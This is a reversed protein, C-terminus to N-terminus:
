RKRKIRNLSSHSATASPKLGDFPGAPAPARDIVQKVRTVSLGEEAAIKQLFNKTGAARLEAKRGRLRQGRADPSEATGIGAAGPTEAWRKLARSDFALRRAEWALMEPLEVSHGAVVIRMAERSAQLFVATRGRGGEFWGLRMGEALVVADPQGLSRALVGALTRHTMRWRELLSLPLSVRGMDDRKDCAVFAVAERGERPLVHVPMACAQECGPCVVSAAPAARLLVGQEILAGALAAPWEGTEDAGIELPAGGCAQLREFLDILEAPLTARM